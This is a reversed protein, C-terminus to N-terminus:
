CLLSTSFRKSDGGRMDQMPLKSSGRMRKREEMAEEAERATGVAERDRRLVSEERATRGGEYYVAAAKDMTAKSGSRTRM